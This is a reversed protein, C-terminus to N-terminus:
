GGCTPSGVRQCQSQASCSRTPASCMLVDGALNSQRFDADIRTLAVNVKFFDQQAM